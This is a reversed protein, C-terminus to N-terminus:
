PFFVEASFSRPPFDKDAPKAMAAGPALPYPTLEVCPGYNALAQDPTLRGITIM